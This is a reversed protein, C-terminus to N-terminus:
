PGSRSSCVVWNIYEWAIKVKPSKQFINTPQPAMFKHVKLFHKGKLGLNQWILYLQSVIFMQENRSKLVKITFSRYSTTVMMVLLQVSLFLVAICLWSSSLSCIFYIIIHTYINQSCNDSGQKLFCPITFLKNGQSSTFEPNEM